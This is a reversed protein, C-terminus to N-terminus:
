RLLNMVGQQSQNAQALMADNTKSLTLTSPNLGAWTGRRTVPLDGWSCTELADYDVSLV